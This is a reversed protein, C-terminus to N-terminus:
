ECIMEAVQQFAGDLSSLDGSADIFISKDTALCVNRLRPKVHDELQIGVVILNPSGPASAICDRAKEMSNQMSRTDEGDTLSVIWQQNGPPSHEFTKVCEVLADWFATAGRPNQCNADLMMRLRSRRGKAVEQLPITTEATNSFLVLSIHDEDEIHQDFVKLLNERAKNMRGQSMSYSKDVCFVVSKQQGAVASREQLVTEGEAKARAVQEKLVKSIREHPSTLAPVARGLEGCLGTFRTVLEQDVQPMLASLYDKVRDLAILAMVNKGQKKARAVFGLLGETRTLMFRHVKARQESAELMDKSLAAHTIPSVGQMRVLETVAAREYVCGDSAIVPDLLLELTIPCILESDELLLSDLEAQLPDGLVRGAHLGSASGASPAEAAAVAAAIRGAPCAGARAGSFPCAAPQSTPATPTPPKWGSTLLEMAQQGDGKCHELAATVEFLGFGAQMLAQRSRDASDSDEAVLGFCLEVKQDDLMAVVGKQVTSSSPWVLKATDTAMELFFSWDDVPVGLKADDFGRSTVVEPGGASSCVLETVLFKLGPPTRKFTPDFPIRVTSRPDLAQELLTDVFHALPYVGGAHAYLSDGSPVKRCLGPDAPVREGDRIVVQDRFAAIIGTLDKRTAPDIKFERLVKEVGQMFADWQSLNIGLHKHAAEMSQGTYRQPGGTLYGFIQTVLFKFGFKQQSDHWRAVMDNANLRRDEMWVDMLRDALKALGFVGGGRGYLTRPDGHVRKRAAVFSGLSTYRAAIVAASLMSGAAAEEATKVKSKEVSMLGLEALGVRVDDKQKQSALFDLAVVGGKPVYLIPVGTRKGLELIKDRRQEMHAPIPPSRAPDVILREVSNLLQILEIRLSFSEFHDSAAKAADLLFFMKKPPLLLRTEPFVTATNVEPGGAANCIVETFLYKLSAENRKQGDVPLAVRRDALLADVLRDAFLALPYAGGARAYLTETGRTEPAPSPPVAEGPHVVCDPEMSNLVAALDEVDIQPLGFEKCVEHFVDMFVAWEAPVINLHKHAAVMPLGTYRQPGGALYGMLQTVLFKFGCRQARDHWTAVAANSNLTDDAMWKDMCRDVFGAIGFIGGCRAYLTGMEGYVRIRDSEETAGAHSGAVRSSGAESGTETVVEEPCTEDHPMSKGGCGLWSGFFGGGGGGGSKSRSTSTAISTSTAAEKTIGVPLRVLRLTSGTKVGHESMTAEDPIRGEFNLTHMDAPLNALQELIQRVSLATATPQVEFMIVNGTMMRVSITLSTKLRLVLHLTSDKTVGAQALSQGDPLTKGGFILRQQEVPISQAENIRQKVVETVDGPEVVVKFIKGSKIDKVQLQMAARDLGSRLCTLAGELASSELQL